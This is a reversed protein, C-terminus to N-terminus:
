KPPFLPYDFEYNLLLWAGYAGVNRGVKLDTDVSVSVFAGNPTVLDIIQDDNVVASNILNMWRSLEPGIPSPVGDLMVNEVTDRNELLVLVQPDMRWITPPFPPRKHRRVDEQTLRAGGDYLLFAPREVGLDGTETPGHNRYASAIGSLGQGIEFLRELIAERRDLTPDFALSSFQLTMSM